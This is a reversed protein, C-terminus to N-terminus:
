KDIRELLNGFGFALASPSRPPGLTLRLTGDGAHEISSGLASRDFAIIVSASAHAPFKQALGGIASLVAEEGFAQILDTRTALDLDVRLGPPWAQSARLVDLTKTTKEGASAALERAEEDAKRQMQERTATRHARLKKRNRKDLRRLSESIMRAGLDGPKLGRDITIRDFEEAALLHEILLKNVERRLSESLFVLAQSLAQAATPALPRMERGALEPLTRLFAEISPIDLESMGLDIGYQSRLRAAVDPPLHAMAQNALSVADKNQQVSPILDSEIKEAFATVTRDIISNTIVLTNAGESAGALQGLASLIRNQLTLSDQSTFPSIPSGYYRAANVMATISPGSFRLTGLPGLPVSIDRISALIQSRIASRAANDWFAPDSLLEIAEAALERKVSYDKKVASVAGLNRDIIDQIDRNDSNPGDSFIRSLRDAILEKTQPPLPSLALTDLVAVQDSRPMAALFKLASDLGRQPDAQAAIKDAIQLGEAGLRALHAALADAQSRTGTFKDKGGFVFDTNLTAYPFPTWRLGALCGENSINVGGYSIKEKECLTYISSGPFVELSAEIEAGERHYEVRGRENKYGARLHVPKRGLNSSLGGQLKDAVVTGSLRRSAGLVLNADVFPVPGSLTITAQPSIEQELTPRIQDRLVRSFITHGVPLLEDTVGFIGLAQYDRPFSLRMGASANGAINPAYGSSRVLGTASWALDVALPSQFPLNLRAARGFQLLGGAFINLQQQWPDDVTTRSRLPNIVNEPMELRRAMDIFRDMSSNPAADGFFRSKLDVAAAQFEFRRDILTDLPSRSIHRVNVYPSVDMVASRGGNGLQGVAVSWNGANVSVENIGLGNQDTHRLSVGVSVPPKDRSDGDFAAGGSASAGDVASQFSPLKEPRPPPPMSVRTRAPPPSAQMSLLQEIREALVLGGNQAAGPVRGLGRIEALYKRANPDASADPFDAAFNEVRASADPWAGSRADEIASLLDKNAILARMRLRESEASARLNPDQLSELWFLAEKPASSAKDERPAIAALALGLGLRASDLHVACPADDPCDEIFMRFLFAARGPHGQAAEAQAAALQKDPNSPGQPRSGRPLIDLLNWRTESPQGTLSAAAPSTLAAILLLLISM